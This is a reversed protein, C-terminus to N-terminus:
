VSLIASSNVPAHSAPGKSQQELIKQADEPLDYRSLLTSEFGKLRSMEERLVADYEEQGKLEQLVEYTAEFKDIILRDKISQTIQDDSLLEEKTSEALSDILKDLTQIYASDAKRRELGLLANKFWMGEHKINSPRDKLIGQIRHQDLIERAQDATVNARDFEPNKAAYADIIPSPNDRLDIPGSPNSVLRQNIDDRYERVENLEKKAEDRKQTLIDVQTTYEEKRRQYDERTLTGWQDPDTFGAQLLLKRHEPNNPDVQDLQELAILADVAEIKERYEDIQRDYEKIQNELFAIQRDLQDLLQQWQQQKEREKKERKAQTQNNGAGAGPRAGGAADPNDRIYNDYLGLTKAHGSFLLADYDRSYPPSAIDVSPPQPLPLPASSTVPVFIAQAVDPQAVNNFARATTTPPPRTGHLGEDQGSGLTM